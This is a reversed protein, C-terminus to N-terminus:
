KDQPRSRNLWQQQLSSHALLFSTFRTRSSLQTSRTFIITLSYSAATVAKMVLCCRSDARLLQTAERRGCRPQQKVVHFSAPAAAFRSRHGPGTNWVTVHLCLAWIGATIKHAGYRADSRTSLVDGQLMRESVLMRSVSATKRVTAAAVTTGGPM